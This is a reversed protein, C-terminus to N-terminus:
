RSASPNNESKMIFLVYSKLEPVLDTVTMWVLSYDVGFYAHILKDRMGAVNRWKIGPYKDRIEEPIQKVAEGIVELSRVFSRKFTRNELFEDKTLKSTEEILYDAEDIIHQLLDHLSRSM